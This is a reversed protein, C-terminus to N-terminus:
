TGALPWTPFNKEERVGATSRADAAAARKAALSNVTRRLTVTDGSVETRINFSNTRPDFLFADEVARFLEAVTKEVCKGARMDEDRAWREVPLGPSDVKKVGTICADLVTCDKEALSGVTGSLTVVSDAVKVDILGNDALADRRLKGKVDASIESNTRRTKYQVTIANDMARIGRVGKAVDGAFRKEALSDTMGTLQTTGNDVSVVTEHVDTATNSKLATEIDQQLENDSVTTAPEVDIRNVVARVGKELSARREARERDLLNDTTGTLTVIGDTVQVTM